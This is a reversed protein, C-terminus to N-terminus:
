VIDVQSMKYKSVMFVDFTNIHYNIPDEAESLSANSTIVLYLNEKTHPFKSVDATNLRKLAEPDDMNSPTQLQTDEDYHVIKHERRFISCTKNNLQSQGDITEPIFYTKKWLVKFQNKMGRTVGEMSSFPHAIMERLFETHYLLIRKNQADTSVTTLENPDLENDLLKVLRIAFKVNRNHQGWMMIKVKTWDKYLIKTQINAASIATASYGVDAVGITDVCEFDHGNALLEGIGLGFDNNNVINHLPMIHLPLHNISFRSKVKGGPNVGTVGLDFSENIEACKFYLDAHTLRMLKNNQSLNRKKFDRRRTYYGPM